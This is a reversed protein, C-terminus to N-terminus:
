IGCMGECESQFDLKSVVEKHEGGEFMVMQGKDIDNDFDVEDLPKCSRHLFVGMKLTPDIKSVERVEKDLKVALAFSKPDQDRLRRWEEDSHFPCYYCASRPPEKNYNELMWNICDRRRMQKEVLPWRNQCWKDRSTKMRQMEDFSIGIWQTVTIEKQARKIGCLEKVKKIIPRIKYDATCARGIAAVVDGNPKIGFKPITNKVYPSGDKKRYRVRLIDDTLNGASVTYVPYPLQEKLWALHTYVEEPEAGTDAFICFDIDVDFEGKAAMLALCTSQVGAGLSLINWHKKM